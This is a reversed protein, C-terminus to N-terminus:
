NKGLSIEGSILKTFFKFLSSLFRILATLRTTLTPKETVQSMFEFDACNDETMPTWTKTFEDYM